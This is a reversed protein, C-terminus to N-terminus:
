QVLILPVCLGQRIVQIWEYRRRRDDPLLTMIVMPTDPELRDVVDSISSVIPSPHNCSDIYSVSLNDGINRAVEKSSHIVEMRARKDFLYDAYSALSRALQEVDKKLPLWM